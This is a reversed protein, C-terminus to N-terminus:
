VGISEFLANLADHAYRGRRSKNAIATMEDQEGISFTELDDTGLTRLFKEVERWDIREGFDDIPLTYAGVDVTLGQDALMHEVVKVVSPLQRMESKTM